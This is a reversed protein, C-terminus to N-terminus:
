SLSTWDNPKLTQVMRDLLELYTAKDGVTMKVAASVPIGQQVADCIMRIHQFDEASPRM